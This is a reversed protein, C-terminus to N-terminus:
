MGYAEGKMKQIADNEIQRVRECSMNMEEALEKLKVPEGFSPYRKDIVHRERDTLIQKLDDILAYMDNKRRTIEDSDDALMDGVETSEDDGIKENLSVVSKLANQKQMNEPTGFSVAFQRDLARRRIYTRIWYGAYVSFKGGNAADYKDFAKILGCLGESIIDNACCGRKMYEHAIKFVLRINGNIIRERIANDHTEMYLAYLRNFEDNKVVPFRLLEKPM